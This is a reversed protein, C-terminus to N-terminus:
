SNMVYKEFMEQIAEAQIEFKKSITFLTKEYNSGANIEHLFEHFALDLKKQQFEM